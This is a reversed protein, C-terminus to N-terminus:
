TIAAISFTAADDEQAVNKPKISGSLSLMASKGDSMLMPFYGNPRVRRDVPRQAIFGRLAPSRWTLAVHSLVAKHRHSRPASSRCTALSRGDADSGYCVYVADNARM